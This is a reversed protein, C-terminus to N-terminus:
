EVQMEGKVFSGIERLVEEKNSIYGNMGAFIHEYITKYDYDAPIGSLENVFEDGTLYKYIEGASVPETAPHWLVIGNELAIQIDNWM